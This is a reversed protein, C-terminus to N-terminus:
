YYERSHYKDPEGTHRAPCCRRRPKLIPVNRFTARAQGMNFYVRLQAIKTIGVGVDSFVVYVYQLNANQIAKPGPKSILANDVARTELLHVHAFDAAGGLWGSCEDAFGSLTHKYWNAGVNNGDQDTLVPHPRDQM